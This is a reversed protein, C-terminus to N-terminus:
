GAGVVHPPADPMGKGPLRTGDVPGVAVDYDNCWGDGVHEGNYLRPAEDKEGEGIVVVGRMHVSGM